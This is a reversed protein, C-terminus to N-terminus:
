KFYLYMSFIEESWNCYIYTVLHLVIPLHDLDGMSYMYFTYEIGKLVAIDLVDRYVRRGSPIYVTHGRPGIVLNNEKAYRALFRWCTNHTSSHWITNKANLDGGLITPFEERFILGIDRTNLYLDPKKYAAMFKLYGTLQAGVKVTTVEFSPPTSFSSLGNIRGHRVHIWDWGGCDDLPM